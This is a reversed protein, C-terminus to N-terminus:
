GITEMLSEDNDILGIEIITGYNVQEGPSVSQRQVVITNSDTPMVGATKVFLGFAELYQKAATFSKGTMDPVFVADKPKEGGAYLIVTSGAAIKMNGVPAQDTVTDGTGEVRVKFGQAEMQAKADALAESRVNPVSVNAAASGTSEEIGLYPLIDALINGVCPAVMGGGSIYIGSRPDPSDLIVLVAVQPDEMPAVGIFSVMYEDSQQGVKESTGTKGGVSYGAVSANKGTGTPSSVVSEIISRVKASTEESIVQRVVTPSVSAKVTGDAALVQQVVYPKMLYGGNMTASIATILQIPTINFTQGFSASALQSHNNPDEFVDESWWISSSEGYLDIGTKEFFGFAEMYDYFRKAGLKLGINAFAVNCSNQASQALTQDGHGAHKWCHLPDTRGLIMTSGGCYFHDEPTVVGEELASALTIIKFTSGPEYTDTIARNRWQLQLLELYKENYEEATMSGEGNQWQADLKEQYYPDLTSFNNLDYDPVSIMGLIRGTKVEMVIGIGGNLIENDAIAQEINKKLYYQVTTNLTLVLSDGDSADAYDEYGTFLMDTGQATAARVIRGNVGSLAENYMAELGELGKNETGVFGIIQSGLSSYPYYRKSDELLHVSCLYGRETVKQDPSNDHYNPDDKFGGNIYARVQDALDQEVKLRVTSYWSDTDDWKRMITDYDVDLVESLMKTVAVKDEGYEALEHPSVYITEVTASQALIIGNTDYITGRSATVTTSRVQNEVAASEYRDHEGIMIKALQAILVIFAVLGCLFMLIVTRRRTLRDADPQVTDIQKKAMDTVRKGYNAGQQEPGCM